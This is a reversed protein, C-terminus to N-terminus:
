AAPRQHKRLNSTSTVSVWQGCDTCRAGRGFYRHLSAADATSDYHSTGSGTCMSEDVPRSHLHTPADPMCVSCLVVSRGSGQVEFHEIADAMNLGSLEPMWGLTTRQGRRHLTQCHEDSHVHGGAVSWFRPWPRRTYEANLPKAEDELLALSERAALLRDLGSRASRISNAQSYPLGEAPHTALEYAATIADQDTMVWERRRGQQKDGAARHLTDLAVTAKREKDFERRAIDMLRTDIEAPTATALDALM